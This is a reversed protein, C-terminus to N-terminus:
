RVMKDAFDGADCGTPAIWTGSFARLSPLDGANTLWRQAASAAPV